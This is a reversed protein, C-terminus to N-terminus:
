SSATNWRSILVSSCPVHRPTKPEGKSLLGSWQSTTSTSLSKRADSNKPTGLAFSGRCTFCRTCRKATSIGLYGISHFCGGGCPLRGLGRQSGRGLRHLVCGDGGRDFRRHLTSGEQPTSAIGIWQRFEGLLDAHCDKALNIRSTGTKVLKSLVAFMARTWLSAPRVAVTLSM